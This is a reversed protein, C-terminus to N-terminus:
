DGKGIPVSAPEAQLGAATVSWSLLNRLAPWHDPMAVVPAQWGDREATRAAVAHGPGEGIAIIGERTADGAPWAAASCLAREASAERLQWRGDALSLGGTYSHPEPAGVLIAQGESPETIAAQPVRVAGTIAAGISDLSPLSPMPVGAEEALAAALEVASLVGPPPDQWAPVAQLIGQADMVTGSEEWPLALPIVVDASDAFRCDLSGAWAVTRCSATWHQWTATPLASSPDLGVVLLAEVQGSEIAQLIDAMDQLGLEQKLAPVALANTCSPLAWLRAGRATALDRASSLVSAPAGFRGPSCSIVLGPREAQRLAHAVEADAPAGDQALSAIMRAVENPGVLVSSDAARSSRGPATDISIWRHGREARQMARLRWAIAPHTSCVDGVTIVLDCADLDDFPPLAGIGATM